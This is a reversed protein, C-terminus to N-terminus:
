FYLYQLNRKSINLSYASNSCEELEIHLKIKTTKAWQEWNVDTIQCRDFVDYFLPLFWYDINEHEWRWKEISVSEKLFKLNSFPHKLVPLKSSMIIIELTPDYCNVWFTYLTPWIKTKPVTQPGMNITWFMLFCILGISIILQVLRVVVLITHWIYAVICFGYKFIIYHHYYYKYLM